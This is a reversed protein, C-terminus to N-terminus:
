RIHFIISRQTIRLIKSIPEGQDVRVGKKRIGNQGFNFILEIINNLDGTIM